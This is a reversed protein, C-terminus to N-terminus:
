NRIGARRPPTAPAAIRATAERTGLRAALGARLQNREDGQLQWDAPRRARLEEATWRARMLGRRAHASTGLLLHGLEHAIALGTLEEVGAGSIRAMWEVRELFITAVTGRRGAADVVAYGLAMAGPRPQPTHQRALRLVLDQPEPTGM